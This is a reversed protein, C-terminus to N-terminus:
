AVPRVKGVARTVSAVEDRYATGIARLYDESRIHLDRLGAAQVPAGETEINVGIHMLVSRPSTTAISVSLKGAGVYLDDGRVDIHVGARGTIWDAALRMFLRQRWVGEALGLGRHEVIAHAMHPSYIELGAEADELDVMHEPSVDAEGRFLLVVDRPAAGGPDAHADVFATSLQTGDYRIEADLLAIDM